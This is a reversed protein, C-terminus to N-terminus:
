AVWLGAIRWQQTVMCKMLCEYHRQLLYTYCFVFRKARVDNQLPCNWHHRAMLRYACVLWQSKICCHRLHNFEGQLSMMFTVLEQCRFIRHLVIIEPIIDSELFTKICYMTNYNNQSHEVKAMQTCRQHGGRHDLPRLEQSCIWLDRARNGASGSKRLFLPDLVPDV